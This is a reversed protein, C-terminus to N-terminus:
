PVDALLTNMVSPPLGTAPEGSSGTTEPSELRGLAGPTLTGHPTPYGESISLQWSQSGGEIAPCM